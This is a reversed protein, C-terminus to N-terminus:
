SVFDNKENHGACDQNCELWLRLSSPAPLLPAYDALNKGRSPAKPRSGESEVVLMCWQTLTFPAVAHIEMM